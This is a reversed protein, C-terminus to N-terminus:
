KNIYVWVKGSKVWEVVYQNDVSTDYSGLKVTWSVPVTPTFAGSIYVTITKSFGTTPTNTETFTTDGTMVYDWTEYASWDIVETAGSGVNGVDNVRALGNYSEFYEKTILTRDAFSVSAGTPVTPADIKAISLSPASVHGNSMVVLGNARTGTNSDSNWNGSGVILRPNYAYTTSTLQTATTQTLDINGQGIVTCSSSGGSLGQGVMLSDKGAYMHSNWGAMISNYVVAQNLTAGQTGVFNEFGGLINTYLNNYLTGDSSSIINQGSYGNTSEGVNYEGNMLTQEYPNVNYRGFTTSYIGSTINDLGFTASYNGTTGKTSGTTTSHSFDVSNLGINGFYTPDRGILRWGNGSGENLVELGTSTNGSTAGSLYERTILARGTAEADIKAITLSPATVEGDSMVVLGNARTGTNAVPLWNGTGVIFRPGYDNFNGEHWDAISTTLDVNAVGVITTGVSGGSLAQGFMTSCRGAYMDCNHGILVSEYVVADTLGASPTGVNNKFGWSFSNYINNYYTSNEGGVINNGSYGNTTNGVNGTGFMLTDIYPNVNNVGFTVARTGTSGRTTSTSSSDSFDIAGTGINGYKTPDRGILRWGQNTETISELGSSQNGANFILDSGNIKHLTVTGGSESVDRILEGRLYIQNDDLEAHTLVSGKTVDSTPTVWPSQLSRLILKNNAM